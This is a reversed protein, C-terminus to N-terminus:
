PTVERIELVSWRLGGDDPHAVFVPQNWTQWHYTPTSSDPKVVLKPVIELSHNNALWDPFFYTPSANALNDLFESARQRWWSASQEWETRTESYFQNVILKGQMTFSVSQSGRRFGCEDWVAVLGKITGTGNERVRLDDKVVAVPLQVAQSSGDLSPLTVAQLLVNNGDIELDQLGPDGDIILVGTINAGDELRITGNGYFVGLPNTKPDPQLTQNRVPSSLPTANYAKGGPYLRYSTVTGPHTIPASSISTADQWTLQLEEQCLSKTEASTVGTAATIPGTLPRYDVGEVLRKYNYSRLLAARPSGPPNNGISVPMSTSNAITGLKVLSGVLVGDKFLRM